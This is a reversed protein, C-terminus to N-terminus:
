HRRWSRVIIVSIIGVLSIIIGSAVLIPVPNTPLDKVGFVRLSPDGFLAVKSPHQYMAVYAWTFDPPWDRAWKTHEGHGIDHEELYKITANNWMDGLIREGGTYAKIFYLNLDNVYTQLVEVGGIYAVGGKDPYRVLFREAMCDRDFPQISAPEPPIRVTVGHYTGAPYVVDHNSGSQNTGTISQYYDWPPINLYQATSCSAAFIIPYMDLNNLTDFPDDGWIKLFNLIDDKGDKNLDGVAPQDYGMRNGSCFSDHWVTSTDFANELSIAVYVDGELCYKKDGECRWGGIRSNRLFLALDDKGDGNFDGALVRAGNWLDGPCFGTYWLSKDLIYQGSCNAVYVDGSIANIISLDDIEDGNFDGIVVEENDNVLNNHWIHKDGFGSGNSLAIYVAGDSIHGIDKKGDGNFDGVFGGVTFNNHWVGEYSFNQYFSLAVHVEGTSTDVRLIDERKDGNFDGVRIIGGEFYPALNTIKMATRFRDYGANYQNYSVYINGNSEFFILDICDNGDVDAAIPEGILRKCFSPNWCDSQDFNTGTSSAVWVKYNDSVNGYAPAWLPNGHGAFNLFGKGKLLEGNIRPNNPREGTPRPRNTVDLDYLKTVNYGFSILKASINESLYYQDIDECGPAVLLADDLWDSYAAHKEYSIVKDVYNQAEEVNSALVRGVAIDPYMDLRDHNIPGADQLKWAGWLEGYVGDDDNDWDHFQGQVDYLDAYYLDSASYVFDSSNKTDKTHVNWDMRIYRVPFMDCDGVLLVYKIGYVRHWEEIGRKIREPTDDGEFSLDMSQWTAIDTSMGTTKKWDALKQCPELFDIHTLILLDYHEISVSVFHVPFILSLSIFLLFAISYCKRSRKNSNRMM